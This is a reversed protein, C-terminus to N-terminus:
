QTFFPIAWFPVGGSRQASRQRARPGAPRYYAATRPPTSVVRTRRHRANAQRPASPKAGAPPGALSM